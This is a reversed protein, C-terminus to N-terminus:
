PTIWTPCSSEVVDSSAQDRHDVWEGAKALTSQLGPNYFRLFQYGYVLLAVVTM